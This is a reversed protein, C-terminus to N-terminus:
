SRSIEGFQENIKANFDRMVSELAEILANTIDQAMKNLFRM